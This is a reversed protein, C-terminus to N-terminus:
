FERSFSSDYSKPFCLQTKYNLYMNIYTDTIVFVLSFLLTIKVQETQYYATFRLNRRDCLVVINEHLTLVVCTVQLLQLIQLFRVRVFLQFSINLM